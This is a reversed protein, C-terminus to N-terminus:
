LKLREASMSSTSATYRAVRGLCYLAVGHCGVGEWSGPMEVCKAEEDCALEHRASRNAFVIM